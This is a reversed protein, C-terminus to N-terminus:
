FVDEVKGKHLVILGSKNKSIVGKKSLNSMAESVTERAAGIMEALKEHTVKIDLKIKDGSDSGHDKSLTIIQAVLRAEVNSFVQTGLRQELAVLKNSFSSLLQLTFEPNNRLIDEFDSKNIECVKAEQFPEIFLSENPYNKSGTFDLDGFVSGTSLVDLIVKKGDENIYSLFVLGEHIIYVKGTIPFEQSEGKRRRLTRVLSMKMIKDTFKKGLSKFLDKDHVFCAGYTTDMPLKYM